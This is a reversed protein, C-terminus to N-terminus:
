PRTASGCRSDIFPRGMNSVIPTRTCAVFYSGPPAKVRARAILSVGSRRFRAGAVRRFPGSRSGGRYFYAEPGRRDGRPLDGGASYTLDDYGSRRKDPSSYLGVIPDVYVQLWESTLMGLRVRFRTNQTPTVPLFRAVGHRDVPAEALSPLSLAALPPDSQLVAHPPIIGAAFQALPGSLRATVPIATGDPVVTRPVSLRAFTITPPVQGSLTTFAGAGTVTGDANSAVLGVAYLTEPTLGTISATVVQPGAGPTLQGMRTKVLTGTGSSPAYEFYYTTLLTGPDITGSLVASTATVDTPQAVSVTPEPAPCGFLGCSPGELAGTSRAALASRPAAAGFPGGDAAAGVLGTPAAALTGLIAATLGRILRGTGRRARHWGGHGM